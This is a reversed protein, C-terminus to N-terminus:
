VPYGFEYDFNCMIELFEFCYFKESEIFTGKMDEMKNSFFRSHAKPKPEGSCCFSPNVNPRPRFVPGLIALPALLRQAVSNFSRPSWNQTM